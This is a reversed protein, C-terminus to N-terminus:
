VNNRKEYQKVAEYLMINATQSTNLCFGVGPMPIYVKESEKLIEEPIGSTENGVVICIKESFDYSFDYISKSNPTLEASILKTKTKKMERVFDSPNKFQKLDVHDCTSGSSNYIEKRAPISGVVNLSEAGFCASSRILYGLNADIRFNIACLSIPYTKSGKKKKQYRQQRTKNRVTM